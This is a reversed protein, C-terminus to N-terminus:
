TVGLLGQWHGCKSPPPAPTSARRNAARPTRVEVEVEAGVELAAETVHKVKGEPTRHVATVRVGGVTGTDSPQGGGEPFLVTDSLEVLWREPEPAAAGGGAGGGGGKKKKKKKSPAPAAAAKPQLECALVQARLSRLSSDRQCAVLGTGGGGSGGAHSTPPPREAFGDHYLPQQQQQAPPAAAPPPLPEAELSTVRLQLDRLQAQL